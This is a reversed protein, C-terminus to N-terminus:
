ISFSTTKASIELGLVLIDLIMSKILGTSSLASIANESCWIASFSCQSVSLFSTCLNFKWWQVHKYLVYIHYEQIVVRSIQTYISFSSTNVSMELGMVLIDLIM